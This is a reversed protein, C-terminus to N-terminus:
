KIHLQPVFEEEVQFTVPQTFKYNDLSQVFTAADTQENEYVKLRMQLYAITEELQIKYTM